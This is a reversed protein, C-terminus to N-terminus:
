HVKPDGDEDKRAADRIEKMRELTEDSIDPLDGIRESVDAVRQVPPHQLTFARAGRLFVESDPSTLFSHVQTVLALRCALVNTVIQEDSARAVWSERANARSVWRHKASWGLWTRETTRELGSTDGSATAKIHHQRASERVARRAGMAVFSRFAAYAKPTETPLRDWPHATETM